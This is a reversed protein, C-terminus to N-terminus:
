AGLCIGVVCAAIIISRRLMAQEAGFSFGHCILGDADNAPSGHDAIDEATSLLDHPRAYPFTLRDIWYGAWGALGAMHLKYLSVAILSGPAQDQAFLSACFLLVSMLVLATLRPAKLSPFM